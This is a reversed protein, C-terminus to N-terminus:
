NRRCEMEYAANYASDGPKDLLDGIRSLEGTVIM